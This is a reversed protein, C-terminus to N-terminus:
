AGASLASEGRQMADGAGRRSGTGGNLEAALQDAGQVLGERDVVNM